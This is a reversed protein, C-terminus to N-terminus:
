AEPLAPAPGFCMHHVGSHLVNGGLAMVACLRAGGLLIGLAALATKKTERRKM